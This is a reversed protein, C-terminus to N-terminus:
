FHYKQQRSTIKRVIRLWSGTLDSPGVLPCTPSFVAPSLTANGTITRYPITLDTYQSRVAGPACEAPPASSIDLRFAGSVNPDYPLVGVYYYQNVQSDLVLTSCIDGQYDDVNDICRLDTCSADDTANFLILRTDIRIQPNCTSIYIRIGVGQFKFWSVRSLSSLVDASPCLTSM